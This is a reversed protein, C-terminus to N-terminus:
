LSFNRAASSNVLYKYLDILNFLFVCELISLCFSDMKQPDNDNKSEAPTSPNKDGIVKRRLM